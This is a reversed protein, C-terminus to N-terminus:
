PHNRELQEDRWQDFAKDARDDYVVARERHVPQHTHHADMDAHTECDESRVGCPCSRSNLMRWFAAWVEDPDEHLHEALWGCDVPGPKLTALWAEIEDVLKAVRKEEAARSAALRQETAAPSWYDDTM